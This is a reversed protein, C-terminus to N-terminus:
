NELRSTFNQIIQNLFGDQLGPKILELRIGHPNVKQGM